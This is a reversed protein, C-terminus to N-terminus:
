SSQPREFKSDIDTVTGVDAMISDKVRARGTVVVATEGSKVM